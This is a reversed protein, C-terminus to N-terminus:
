PTYNHLIEQITWGPLFIQDAVVHRARVGARSAAPQGLVPGSGSQNHRQVNARSAPGAGSDPQNHRKM